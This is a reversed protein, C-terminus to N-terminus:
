SRAIGRGLIERVIAALGLTAACARRRDMTSNWCTQVSNLMVNTLGPDKEGNRPVSGCATRESPVADDSDIWKPAVLTDNNCPDLDWAMTILFKLPIGESAAPVAQM